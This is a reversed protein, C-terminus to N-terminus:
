DGNAVSIPAGRRGGTESPEYSFFRTAVIMGAVTWASLKAIAPWPCRALVAMALTQRYGRRTVSM